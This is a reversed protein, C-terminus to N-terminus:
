PYFRVPKQKDRPRRPPLETCSNCARCSSCLLPTQLCPPPPVRSGSSVIVWPSVAHRRERMMPGLLRRHHAQTLCPIENEDPMRCSARNWWPTPSPERFRESTQESPPRGSPGNRRSTPHVALIPVAPPPGRTSRDDWLQCHLREVARDPEGQEDSESLERPM